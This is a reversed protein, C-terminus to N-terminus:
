WCRLVPPPEACDAYAVLADLAVESEYGKRLLVGLARERERRDQPPTPFRRRLLAVARSIESGTAGPALAQEVLERDVGRELLARQIRESGWQELERKDEAFLRAYRADDLYGQEALTGIAAEIEEPGCGRAQLHRQMESVTRDRRNLHRYALALAHELRDGASPAKGDGVGPGHAHGVDPDPAQRDGAAPTRDPATKPQEAEL